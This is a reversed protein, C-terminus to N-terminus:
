VRKKIVKKDMISEMRDGCKHQDSSFNTHLHFALGADKRPGNYILCNSRFHSIRKNHESYIHTYVDDPRKLVVNKFCDTPAARRVVLTKALAYFCAARRHNQTARELMSLYAEQDAENRSAKVEKKAAKLLEDPKDSMGEVVYVCDLQYIPQTSPSDRPRCFVSALKTSPAPGHDILSVHEMKGEGYRDNKIPKTKECYHAHLEALRLTSLITSAWVRWESLPVKTTLNYYLGCRLLTSWINVYLQRKVPTVWEIEKPTVPKRIKTVLQM